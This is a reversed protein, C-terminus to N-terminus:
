FRRIEGPAYTRWPSCATTDVATMPPEMTQTGHLQPRRDHAGRPGPHLAHAPQGPAGPADLRALRLRPNVPKARSGNLTFSRPGTVTVTWTGNVVAPFFIGSVKVQDGTAYGHDAVTEVTLPTGDRVAAIEKHPCEKGDVDKDVCIRMPKSVQKNGLRDSAFVALCAWGDSVFNALTDLQTGGCLPNAGGAEQKPITWVSASLGAGVGGYGPFIRVVDSHLDVFIQRGLERHAVQGQGLEGGGRLGPRAIKTNGGGFCSLDDGVMTVEPANTNTLDPIGAPAIPVAHGAARGQGDHAPHHAGAAPQRRRVAHRAQKNGRAVPNTNVV